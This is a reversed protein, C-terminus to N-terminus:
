ATESRGRGGARRWEWEALREAAGMGIARHLEVLLRSADPDALPPPGLRTLVAEPHEPPAFTTRLAAAPLLPRFFLEPKELANAPLPEAPETGKRPGALPAGVTGSAPLSRHRRLTALVEGRERGRLLFLIFPDQDLLEGLRILVASAHPCPAPTRGCTCAVSLDEAKAPFLPRGAAAFAAEVENAIRGSLLSAALSARAAVAGLARDFIRAPLREVRIRVDNKERAGTRVEAFAEGRSVDLSVVRGGETRAAALRTGWGFSDLLSVWRPSLRPAGPGGARRRAASM